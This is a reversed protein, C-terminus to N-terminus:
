LRIDSFQHKITSFCDYEGDYKKMIANLLMLPVLMLIDSKAYYKQLFFTRAKSLKAFRAKNSMTKAELLVIKASSVTVNSFDM